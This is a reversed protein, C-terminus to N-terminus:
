PGDSAAHSSAAGDVSAAFAVDFQELRAVDYADIVPGLPVNPDPHLIVPSQRNVSGIQRLRERVARVSTFPIENVRWVVADNERVIRVVIEDFDAEPPPPPPSASAESGSTVSVASPLAHEIIQFSATCLFFIILQFVVDIMPTM